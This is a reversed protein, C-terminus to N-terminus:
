ISRLASILDSCSHGELALLATQYPEPSQNPDLSSLLSTSFLSAGYKFKYSYQQDFIIRSCMSTLRLLNIRTRSISTVLFSLEVSPLEVVLTDITSSSSVLIAHTTKPLDISAAAYKTTSTSILKVWLNNANERKPSLFNKYRLSDLNSIRTAPTLM